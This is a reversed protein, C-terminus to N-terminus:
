TPRPKASGWRPLWRGAVLASGAFTLAVIWLRIGLSGPAGIGGLALATLGGCVAVAGAVSQWAPPPTDAQARAQQEFRGFAAVFPLLIALLVLIWLPRTAWWEASNPPLGLGIGGLWYAVGVVLVLVTVHWLYLTMITGNVLVTATWPGLRRLWRRARDEL